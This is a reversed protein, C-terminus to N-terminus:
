AKKKTAAAAKKTAASKKKAASATSKAKKTTKSAAKKTTKKAASATKTAASKATSKAPRRGGRIGMENLQSRIEKRVLALLADTNKRSREVLEEVRDQAQERQVEGAHVLDKVIAQARSRTMQTFAMGAELYRKLTDNEAM